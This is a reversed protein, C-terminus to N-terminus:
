FVFPRGGVCERIEGVTLVERTALLLGSREPAGQDIHAHGAYHILRYAGGALHQCVADKTARMRMLIRAMAAGPTAEILRAVQEIEEAASPLDGTPNGILLASWSPAVVPSPSQPPRNTLLSRAVTYRLALHDEGDHLLDWPLAPDNTAINLAAGPALAELGRRIETPLVQAYLVRCLSALPDVEGARRPRPQREDILGNLLSGLQDIQELLAADLPAPRSAFISTAGDFLQFAYHDALKLISLLKTAM